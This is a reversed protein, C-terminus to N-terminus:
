RSTRQTPASLRELIADRAHSIHERMLVGARDGDGARLAQLIDFHERCSTLFRAPVQTHDFMCTRRRLDGIARMMMQNGAAHALAHHLDDDVGRQEDDDGPGENQLTIVRSELDDLVAASIGTAHRACYSELQQRLFFIEEIEPITLTRVKLFRGEQVALGEAEIRKIAERVPTRSMALEDGLKAEQLLDGPKLVGALIMEIIKGYAQKALPKNM